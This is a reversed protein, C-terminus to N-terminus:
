FGAIDTSEFNYTLKKKYIKEYAEKKLQDDKKRLEEKRIKFSKTCDPYLVDLIHLRYKIKKFGNSEFEEKEIMEVFCSIIPVNYKAALHYAGIKGPRPKRYNFWMEEEPYILIWHKKSLYEKITPYFKKTMYEMSESLPITNCYNLLLGFEGEMFLNEEEIVIDFVKTKKLKNTLHRTITSDQISFHNQTIIAGSDLDKLKELGIIETDKNFLKTYNNAITLAIKCKIKSSLKKHRIDFPIVIEKRQEETVIPDNLEVKDNLRGNKINKKINEIVKLRQEDKEM